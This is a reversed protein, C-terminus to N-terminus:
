TRIGRERLRADLISRVRAWVGEEGEDTAIVHLRDPHRKALGLYTSRVREHFEPSEREIRDLSDSGGARASRRALGVAPAVDFYFTLDPILGGTVFDNLREVWEVGLDRGGGQYAASSDGFRDCVVAAGRALAPRVVESV